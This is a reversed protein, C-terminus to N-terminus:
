VNLFQFCKDCLAPCKSAPDTVSLLIFITPNLVM